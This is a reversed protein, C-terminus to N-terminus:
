IDYKGTTWGGDKSVQQINTVGSVLTYTHLTYLKIFMINTDCIEQCVGGNLCPNLPAAADTSAAINEQSSNM